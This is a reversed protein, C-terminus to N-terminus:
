PMQAQAARFNNLLVKNPTASALQELWDLYGQQVLEMAVLHGDEAEGLKEVLFERAAVPLPQLNILAKYAQAKLSPNSTAAMLQVVADPAPAQAALRNLEGQSFSDTRRRWLLRYLEEDGSAAALHAIVGNDPLWMLKNDTSFQAVLRDVAEPSLKPLQQIFIDRRNAQAQLDGVLWSSLTLQGAEAQILMEGALLHQQWKTVLGRAKAGYYFASKTVQYGDGQEVVTFAPKREAQAQLWDAKSQDLEGSDVAYEVLRARVAEQQLLPLQSLNFELAQIDSNDYLTKLASARIHVQPSAVAQTVQQETVEAAGAPNLGAALLLLLM